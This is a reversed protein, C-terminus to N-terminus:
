RMSLLCLMGACSVFMMPSVTCFSVVFCEPGCLRGAVTLCAWGRSDTLAGVNNVFRGAVEALQRVNSLSRSAKVVACAFMKFFLLIFISYDECCCCVFLAGGSESLM